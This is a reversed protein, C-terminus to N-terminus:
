QAVNRPPKADHRPIGQGEMLQGIKPIAADVGFLGERAGLEQSIRQDRQGGMREQGSRVEISQLVPQNWFAARPLEVHSRSQSNTLEGSRRPTNRPQSM